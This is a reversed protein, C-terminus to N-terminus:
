KKLLSAMDLVFRYKVDSKLMREYAENVYDPKIMEVDSVISHQGCFDLMEQTEKVGGILSGVLSRQMGILWFAHVAMPEPPVGVMVMKGDVDLLNFLPGQDHKASICNVIGDLSGAAAAMADPDSSLLFNKAGLKKADERKSLSTSIVTVECGFAVGFKIAMHGLGGLGAVGLRVGPKCLGHLKM